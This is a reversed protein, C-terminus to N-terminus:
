AISVDAEESQTIYNIVSESWGDIHIWKGYGVGNKNSAINIMYAKEFVPTPVRTHSQEDTIVILRNAMGQVSTIAGGLNTGCHGQSKLM